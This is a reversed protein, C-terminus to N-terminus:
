ESGSLVGAAGLATLAIAAVLVLAPIIEALRRDLGARLWELVQRGRKRALSRVLLIAV